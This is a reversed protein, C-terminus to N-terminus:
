ISIVTDVLKEMFVGREGRISFNVATNRQEVWDHKQVSQLITDIM